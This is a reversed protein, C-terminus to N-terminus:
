PAPGTIGAIPDPHFRRLGRRELKARLRLFPQEVFYYSALAAVAICVLNVPFGLGVDPSFMPTQWLYLSYSLAGVFAMPGTNLFRGAYTTPARVLWDIGIAIAVNRLTVGVMADFLPPLRVGAVAIVLPVLPWLAMGRSELLRRYPAWSWLEGRYRALLCGTALADAVFEFGYRPNGPWQGLLVAASRLLPSLALMVIATAFGGRLGVLALLGPWLLYFQEEVALSWTHSVERVTGLYNATYTGAHILSSAPLDFVGFRAAIVAATLFAYFAPMIRFARRLYFRRLSITGTKAHESLLLGTILFGSIVFFIRVGLNGPDINWLKGFPERLSSPLTESGNLHAVIM